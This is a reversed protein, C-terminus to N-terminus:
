RRGTWGCRRRVVPDPTDHYQRFRRPPHLPLPEAALVKAVTHYSVPRDFRHQCIRAIEFPGPPPYEAKLEVIAKRIGLPLTRRDPAPPEDLAFLSHMGTAKFRVVKRRLTRASVGTERARERVPQGFLVLPRLLEYTAQEPSTVLLRLQQWDDTPQHPSREAAPM